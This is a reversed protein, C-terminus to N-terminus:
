KKTTLSKCGKSRVPKDPASLDKGEADEVLPHLQDTAISTNGSIQISTVRFAIGQPVWSVPPEPLTLRADSSAAGAPLGPQVQQLIAGANPANSVVPGAARAVGCGLLLCILLAAASKM